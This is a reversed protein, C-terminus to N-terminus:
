VGGSPDNSQQREALLEERTKVIKGGAGIKDGRANVRMNGVAITMENQNVLKGMDVEKGQMTRYIKKPQEKMGM